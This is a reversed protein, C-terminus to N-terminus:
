GKDGNEMERMLKELEEDTLQTLDIEESIKIKQEVKKNETYEEPLINSALYKQARVDGAVDKEIVTTKTDGTKSGFNVIEETKIERTRYGLASKLMADELQGIMRAKKLTKYFHISESNYKYFTSISIGIKEALEQNTYKPKNEDNVMRAFEFLKELMDPTLKSHSNDIPQNKKISKPLELPVHVYDSLDNWNKRNIYNNLNQASIGFLKAIQRKNIKSGDGGNEYLQTQYYQQLKALKWKQM